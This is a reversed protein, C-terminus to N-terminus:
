KWCSQVMNDIEEHQIKGPTHTTSFGGKKVLELGLPEAPRSDRKINFLIKPASAAFTPEPEVSPPRELM